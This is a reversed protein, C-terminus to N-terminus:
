PSSPIQIVQGEYIRTDSLNNTNQLAEVTTHFRRAISFLTDNPQIVYVVAKGGEKMALRHSKDRIYDKTLKKKYFHRKIAKDEFQRLLSKAYDIPVAFNLNQGGDFSSTTMGVVKGHLDFLPGGSSGPSLPVSIQFLTIGNDLQRIASILGDSVTNELGLPHGITVVRQGVNVHRSNGLRVARLGAHRIKLLAIDNKPDAEVVQAVYTKNSKLKVYIKSAQHILHFNTLILGDEDVVFGSGMESDHGRSVGVLVISRAYNSFIEEINEDLTLAPINKVFFFSIFFLILFIKTKSKM